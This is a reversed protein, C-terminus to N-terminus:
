TYSKVFKFQNKNHIIQSNHLTTGKQSENADLSNFNSIYPFPERWENRVPSITTITQWHPSLKSYDRFHLLKTISIYDLNIKARTVLTSSPTKQRYPTQWYIIYNAIDSIIVVGSLEFSSFSTNTTACRCTAQIDNQSMNCLCKTKPTNCCFCLGL